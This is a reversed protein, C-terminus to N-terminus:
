KKNVTLMLYPYAVLAEMEIKVNKPLFEFTFLSDTKLKNVLKENLIIETDTCDFNYYFDNHLMKLYPTFSDIVPKGNIKDVLRIKDLKTGNFSVPIEINSQINGRTKSRDIVITNEPFKPLDYQIINLPIDVGGSFDFKLTAVTGLETTKLLEALYKKKITVMSNSIDLVYNADKVLKIEGNYINILQNGNLELKVPLDKPNSNVKFYNDVPFIFSNPIGECANVTIDKLIEDRWVENQRDFYSTGDDWLICAMSYKYATKAIYNNYYWRSLKDNKALSGWEGVIIPLGNRVFNEYLKKFIKDPISKDLLTGWTTTGWWNSVFSWPIYYHVTLIIYKDDPVKFFKLGELIRESEYGLGSVLVLRKGNYGGSSRIIKLIRDTLDNMQKPTLDYRPKPNTLNKPFNFKERFDGRANPENLIEFILKESKNNFRKAIQKWLKEFKDINKDYNNMYRSTKSDIAMECFWDNDHHADIMVWFDRKLAWDVVEEVRDMWKPDVKYDPAPDIHYAWTVPIRISKFGAKKIDDFIYEEVPPNNWSGETPMADLTNGLNWGPSMEKVAEQPSIVKFDESYSNTFNILVVAISFISTLIFSKLIIRYM